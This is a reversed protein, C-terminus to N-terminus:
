RQKERLPIRTEFFLTELRSRNKKWSIKLRKMAEDVDRWDLRSGPDPQAIWEGRVWEVYYGSSRLFLSVSKGEPPMIKYDFYYWEGPETVLFLSDKEALREYISDVRGGADDLIAGPQLVEVTFPKREEPVGWALYDFMLNDPFFQLRVRTMGDAGPEVPLKVALDKWAIPGVDGVRNVEVWSEARKVKLRIGAYPRYIAQYYAAFLSDTNLRHALAVGEVGLSGLVVDYFLTTTLLTNRLRMVLVVSDTEASAPIELDLHDFAFSSDSGFFATSDSRYRQEDKQLVKAKVSQGRADRIEAPPLLKGVSWIRGGSAPYVHSKRDHFVALMNFRNIYHTELAENTLRIRFSGDDGPKQELRDLDEEQYYKSLNYSFLEAGLEYTEGDYTYVTPCSGFCCKPCTICYLSLPTIVTGYTGLILSGLLMGGSHKREYYTMTAISDLPLSFTSDHPILDIGYRTGAASLTDDEVTFGHPLVLVSKNVLYVKTPAKIELGSSIGAPEIRVAKKSPFCGAALFVWLVWVM